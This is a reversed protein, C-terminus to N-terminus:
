FFKKAIIKRKEEIKIIYNALQHTAEVITLNHLKSFQDIYYENSHYVGKSKRTESENFDYIIQNIFKEARNNKLYDRYRNTLKLGVSNLMEDHQVRSTPEFTDDHLVNIAFEGQNTEFRTIQTQDQDFVWRSGNDITTVEPNESPIIESDQVNTDPTAVEISVIEFENVENQMNAITAQINRAVKNAEGEVVPLIIIAKEKAYHYRLARGIIQIIDIGSNFRDGFVISDICPVDEGEKIWPTSTVIASEAQTFPGEKLFWKQAGRKDKAFRRPAGLQTPTVDSAVCNIIAGGFLGLEKQMFRFLNNFDHANQIERYMVLIKRAGQNYANVVGYAAALHRGKITEGYYGLEKNLMGKLRQNSVELLYTEFPCLIGLHIAEFITISYAVEGFLETNAMSFENVTDDEENETYVKITATMFLKYKAKLVEDFVCSTFLGLEKGAVRHCEDYIALDFEIGSTTFISPVGQVAGVSNYVAFVVKKKNSPKEMFEILSAEDKIDGDTYVTNYDFDFGMGIWEEITQNVLSIKPVMFLITNVENMYNFALKAATVTKGSGTAMNLVAKLAKRLEAATLTCAEKQIKDKIANNQDKTLKKM